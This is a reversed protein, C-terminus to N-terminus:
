NGEWKIVLCPNTVKDCTKDPSYTFNGITGQECGRVAKEIAQIQKKATILEVGAWVFLAILIIVVVNVVWGKVSYVDNSM